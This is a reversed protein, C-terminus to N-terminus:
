TKLKQIIIMAITFLGMLAFGSTLVLSPATGAWLIKKIYSEQCFRSMFSSHVLFMQFLSVTFYLWFTNMVFNM